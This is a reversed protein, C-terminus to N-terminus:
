SLAFKICNYKDDAWTNVKTYKSKSAKQALSFINQEIYLDNKAKEYEQNNSFMFEVTNEGNKINEALAQEIAKKANKDYAAFYLGKKKYFNMDLSVCKNDSPNIEFHDNSILSENVNFFTYRKTNANDMDDWTADLYYNKGNLTVVNWMHGVTAGSEDVGKGTVFYNPINAKNLLLQVARAYGECVAKGEVLAGYSTYINGDAESLTYVCNDCIYDHIYKEYEYAGKNKPASNFIKEAQSNLEGTIKDCDGKSHAYIPELYTKGRDYIYNCQMNFCTIQPNDYYVAQVTKRFDEDQLRPIEIRKQHEPLKSVINDYARKAEQSLENYFHRDISGNLQLTEPQTDLQTQTEKNGFVSIQNTGVAIGIVFVTMLIVFLGVLRNKM